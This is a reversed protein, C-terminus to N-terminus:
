IIEFNTQKLQSFFTLGECDKETELKNVYKEIEEPRAYVSELM